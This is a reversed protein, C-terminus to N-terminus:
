HEEGGQSDSIESQHNNGDQCCKNMLMEENNIEQEVIIGVNEDYGLMENEDIENGNNNNGQEYSEKVSISQSQQQSSNETYKGLTKSMVLNNIRELANNMKIVNIKNKDGMKQKKHLSDLEKKLNKYKLTLQQFDKEKHKNLLEFQRDLKERLCKKEIEQKNGLIEAKLQIHANRKKNYNENEQKEMKDCKCKYYHAEKFQEQKAYNMEIQKMELYSKSYKIQPYNNTLNNILEEMQINHMNNLDSESQKGKEVFESLREEWQEALLRFDNNFAEELNEIQKEQIESLSLTKNNLSNCRIENIKNKIENAELYKGESVLRNKEDILSNILDRQSSLDIYSNQKSM